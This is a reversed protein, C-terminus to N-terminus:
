SQTWLHLLIKYFISVRKSIVRMIIRNLNRALLCIPPRKIFMKTSIMSIKKISIPTEQKQSELELRQWELDMSVNMSFHKKYMVTDCKMVDGVKM